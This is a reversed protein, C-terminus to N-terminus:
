NKVKSKRIIILGGLGFLLLTAPEPVITINDIVIHHNGPETIPKFWVTDVNLFNFNFWYPGDPSTQQLSSYVLHGLRWGEVTFPENYLWAATIYAGLFDFPESNVSTMSVHHHGSTYACMSGITGNEYGSGPYYQSTMGRFYFSWNFGEYGAPIQIYSTEYGPHLDEFGIVKVATADSRGAIVLIVFLLIPLAKEINQRTM